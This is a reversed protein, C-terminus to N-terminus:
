VNVKCLIVRPLNAISVYVFQSFVQCTVTGRTIDTVRERRAGFREDRLAPVSVRVLVRLLVLLWVNKLIISTSKRTSTRNSTAVISTSPVLLININLLM